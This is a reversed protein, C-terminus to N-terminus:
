RAHHKEMFKALKRALLRRALALRQRVAPEHLNMLQGIDSPSLEADLSLVLPERLRAPLTAILQRLLARLEARSALEEASVGTSAMQALGSIDDLALEVKKPRRALATHFVVRALWAAPDRAAALRKEYRLARLYAEQVADKALEPNRLIAYALRYYRAAHTQLLLELREAAEKAHRERDNGSDEVAAEAKLGAPM